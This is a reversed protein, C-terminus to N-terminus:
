EVVVGETQSIRAVEEPTTIGEFIKIKGDEMLTRM